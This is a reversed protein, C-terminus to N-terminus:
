HKELEHRLSFEASNVSAHAPVLNGKSHFLLESHTAKPTNDQSQSKMSSNNPLRHQSELPLKEM